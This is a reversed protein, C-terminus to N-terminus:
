QCDNDKGDEKAAHQAGNEDSQREKEGKEQQNGYLRAAAGVQKYGSCERLSPM